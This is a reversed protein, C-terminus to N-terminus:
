FPPLGELRLHPGLIPPPPGQSLSCAGELDGPGTGTEPATVGPARPSACTCVMHGAEPGRQEWVPVCAHTARRESGQKRPFNSPEDKAELSGKSGEVMAGCWVVPPQGSM